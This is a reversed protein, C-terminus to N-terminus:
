GKKKKFTSKKLLEEKISLILDKEALLKKLRQNEKELRKMEQNKQRTDLRDDQNQEGMLQKWNYYTARSINYKRCTELVGTQEGEALIAIKEEFKWTRKKM